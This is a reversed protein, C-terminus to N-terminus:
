PIYVIFISNERFEDEDLTSRTIQAVLYTFAYGNSM